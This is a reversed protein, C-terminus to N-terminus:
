LSLVGPRRLQRTLLRVERTAEGLIERAIRLEAEVEPTSPMRGAIELRLQAAVLLQQLGEHLLGALRRRERTLRLHLKLRAALDIDRFAKTLCDDAGALLAERHLSEDPGQTVVIVPMDGTVPDGRLQRLLALADLPPVDLCLIVLDPSSRRAFDLARGGDGELVLDCTARLLEATTSWSGHDDDAVLLQPLRPSIGDEGPRSRVASEIEM